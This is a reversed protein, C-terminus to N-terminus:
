FSRMTPDEMWIALSRDGKQALVLSAEMFPAGGLPILAKPGDGKYGMGGFSPVIVESQKDINLIPCTLGFVSGAPNKGILQYELVGGAGETMKLTLAADALFVTGNSLGTWTAVLGGDQQRFEYKSKENPRFYNVLPFDVALQQNLSPEGWPVHGKRFADLDYLIGLGAPVGPDAKQADAWLQNSRVDRVEVIQGDRVIASLSSTTVTFEHEGPKVQLAAALSGCCLLSACLWIKIMKFKM